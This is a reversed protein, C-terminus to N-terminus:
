RKHTITVTFVAGPPFDSGVQISNQDGYLKLTTANLTQITFADKESSGNEQLYLKDGERSWEGNHAMVSSMTQNITMPMGDIDYTLEMEFPASHGELTNDENFTIDNGTMDNAIGNFSITMGEVSFTGNMTFEAANWKGLISADQQGGGNGDDDSGCSALSLIFLSLFLYSLIKM